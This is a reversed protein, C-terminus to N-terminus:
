TYPLVSLLVDAILSIIGTIPDFRTLIITDPSYGFLYGFIFTIRVNHVVQLQKSGTKDLNIFVISAYDFHPLALTLVLQKKLPIALSRHYFNLSGLSFHVKRPINNVYPSWNLTLTLSIRLNKILEVYQLQTNNIFIPPLLHIDLEPSTIYAENGVIM